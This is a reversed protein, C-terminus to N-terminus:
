FPIGHAESSRWSRWPHATEDGTRQLAALEERVAPAHDTGCRCTTISATLTVREGCDCEVTICASCWRYVKGFDEVDQVEYRGTTREIVRV